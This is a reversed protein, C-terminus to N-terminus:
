YPDFTADIGADAFREIIYKVEEDTPVIHLEASDDGALVCDIYLEIESSREESNMAYLNFSMREVPDNYWPADIGFKM